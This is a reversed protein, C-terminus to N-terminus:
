RLEVNTLSGQGSNRMEFVGRATAKSPGVAVRCNYPTINGVDAAIGCSRGPLLTAGCENRALFLPVGDPTTIRFGTLTLNSSGSNYVYCVARSQSVGGYLAGAALVQQARAGAASAVTLATTALIALAGQRIKSSLVRRMDEEM